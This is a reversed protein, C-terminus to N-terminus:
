KITVSQYILQEYPLGKSSFVSLRTIVVGNANIFKGNLYYGPTDHIVYRESDYEGLYIMVHGDMFLLSGVDIEDYDETKNIYTVVGPISEQQGTNRPLNIGFVRFVDMVYSSCDRANFDGGWGYPEGLVKFATKMLNGTSYELYGKTCDVREISDKIFYLQGNENGAPILAILNYNNDVALLPFKSGLDLHINSYVSSTVASTVTLFNPCNMYMELVEVSCEAVDDKKIWGMYNYMKVFIWNEDLSEHLIAVPEGVYLSTELFRDYRSSPTSYVSDETPFTKMKTRNVILGYRISVQSGVAFLAMNELLRDYYSVSLKIGNESYRIGSPAVSLKMIDEILMHGDIESSEYVVDDVSAVAKKVAINFASIEEDTLITQKSFSVNKFFEDYENAAMVPVATNSILVAILSAIMFKKM